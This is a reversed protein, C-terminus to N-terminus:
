GVDRKTLIFSQLWYNAVYGVIVVVVVVVIIIVIVSTQLLVQSSPSVQEIDKQSKLHFIQECKKVYHRRFFYCLMVNTLLKANNDCLGYVMSSFM